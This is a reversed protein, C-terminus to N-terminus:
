HCIVRRTCPGVGDNEAAQSGALGIVVLNDRGVRCNLAEHARPCGAISCRECRANDNIESYVALIAVGDLSVIRLTVLNGGYVRSQVVRGYSAQGLVEVIVLPDHMRTVQGLLCSRSVIQVGKQVLM